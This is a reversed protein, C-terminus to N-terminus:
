GSNAYCNVKVELEGISKVVGKGPSVTRCQWCCSESFEREGQCTDEDSADEGAGESEGNIEVLSEVFEPVM